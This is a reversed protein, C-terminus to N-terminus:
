LFPSTNKIDKAVAIYNHFWKENFLIYQKGNCKANNSRALNCAIKGYNFPLM